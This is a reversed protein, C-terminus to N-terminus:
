KEEMNAMGLDEEMIFTEYDVKMGPKLPIKTVIPSRATLVDTGGNLHSVIRKQWNENDIYLYDERLHLGRSEKRMSAMKMAVRTCLLTNETQLMRLLGRNYLLTKSKVPVSHMMRELSQIQELGCCLGEENRWLGMAKDSAAEMTRILKSLGESGNGELRKELLAVIREAERQNDFTWTAKHVYEGAIEGAKYGQVLMETVADAVRNAGFVGSACEGAAFLGPVETQMNEDVLIGGVSYESSLGVEIRRNEKIIKKYALIDNGHYKGRPYFGEFHDMLADFMKDIEEDTFRHFDFYIGGNDTGRGEKIAKGYYYIHVLKCMESTKEMERLKEPIEIKNGFRDVPDYDFADRFTCIVPLISGRMENPEVATILFLMFEMDALGAGARYAMAQGDGTMDSNTNKLSYPQYGGTGLIVAQADYQILEGHYLDWGVAGTVREGTKLLDIIIVDEFIEIAGTKEVGRILSRGMGRGSVDWNGPRYFRYHQGAEEGWQKVEYVIRPSEEVFQEVMNQDSLNFGDNCISRFLDEKTFSPDADPIHFEKYASEGDMGYSGGIMITNGSNGVKGKSVLTVRVGKRAAAVAATCAAGGGGVVLVDTEIRRTIKFM